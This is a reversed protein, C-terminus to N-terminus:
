KHGFLGSMLLLMVPDQKMTTRTTMTGYQYRVLEAAVQSFPIEGM